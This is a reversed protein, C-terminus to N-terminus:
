LHHVGISGRMHDLLLLIVLEFRCIDPRHPYPIYGQPSGSAIFTLSSHCSLTLSIRAPPMVHHHHHYIYVYIYIIMMTIM